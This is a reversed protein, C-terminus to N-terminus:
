DRSVSRAALIRRILIYTMGLGCLPIVAMPIAYSVGLMPSVDDSQEMCFRVGAYSFILLFLMTVISLMTEYIVRTRGRLRGVILEMRFHANGTVALIAGVSAMWILLLRAVEETWSAHFHVVYRNLVQLDVCLVVATMIITASVKVIVTPKEPAQGPQSQSTM